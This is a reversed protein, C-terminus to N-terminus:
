PSEAYMAYWGLGAAKGGAKPNGFLYFSTNGNPPIKLLGLFKLAIDTFLLVFAQQEKVYTLRIQGLSLKMVNQLSILEAGKATGPLEIGVGARYDGPTKSEPSWSLLLYFNLDVKGALKGPTGLNLRFRLGYWDGGAVGALPLDSIADLYGSDKPSKDKTGLVLSDLDLVLNRYLSNKRPTSRSLDFAIESVDLELTSQYADSPDFGMEIGLNSFSLGKGFQDQKPESGFSFLDFEEEEADQGQNKEQTKQLPLFDIFGRMGFWFSELNADDETEEPSKTSPDNSSRTSLQVDTIEVKNVINSDLYFADNEQRDGKLSSLNYVAKGNNMQLSGALLLNNYVNKSDAMKAVPTGFLENLTLQAYSEFSKVATNEFLVKLSLLRFHYADSNAPAISEFPPSDSFDPDVYYILGSIASPNDVAPEGNAGKAVPSIDIALHHANLAARDTVGALISKLNAPLGIVDVRLFLIGTWSESGAIQNFKQFYPNDKQEWVKAFYTQLWQSLIVLESASSGTPVAFDESQTWKKPNSVLSSAPDNPDYLKGRRGKLLMVNRYDGYRQDKGINAQILWDGWGMKNDFKGINRNNAVVLFVESSQLAAVLSVPPQQFALTYRRGGDENWGLKVEEWRVVSGDARQSTKAILGSPTCHYNQSLNRSEGTAANGALQSVPSTSLQAIQKRRYPSLVTKELNQLDKVSMLEPGADGDGDDAMLGAYPLMPFFHKDDAKVRFAPTTHGFLDPYESAVVEDKGFFAAGKPQSVYLIPKARDGAVLTAWSTRYKSDFPFATPDTPPGVPSAIQFPFDPIYTPQRSIFRLIDGKQTTTQPTIKFFETGSLGCCLYHNHADTTSPLALLFDGEPSLHFNEVTTSIRDSLSLVLRANYTANATTGPILEVKAGFTTRYYSTLTVKKGEFDKGTFNFFTRRSNYAEKLSCTDEDCPDFVENYPDSPDITINFGIYDTPNDTPDVFPLWEALSTAGSNEVESNDAKPILCQFGCKLNNQLSTQQIYGIFQVCGRLNGSFSLRGQTVRQMQPASAGSFKLQYRNSSGNLKLTSGDSDLEIQMGAQIQFTLSTTLPTNLATQFSTGNGNIQASYVTEATIDAHTTLWIFQRTFRTVVGDISEVFTDASLQDVIPPSKAALVFTGMYDSNDLADKLSVTNGDPQKSGQPIVFAIFGRDGSQNEAVFLRGVFQKKFQM